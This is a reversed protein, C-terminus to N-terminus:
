LEDIRNIEEVRKKGIARVLSSAGEYGHFVGVLNEPKESIIRQSEITAAFCANLIGEKKTLFVAIPSDEPATRIREQVIPLTSISM